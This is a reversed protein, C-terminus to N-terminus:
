SERRWVLAISGKEGSPTARHQIMEGGNSTVIWKYDAGAGTPSTTATIHFTISNGAEDVIYTGFYAIKQTTGEGIAVISFEGDAGIYM